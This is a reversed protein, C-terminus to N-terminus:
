SVVPQRGNSIGMISLRTHALGVQKNENFWIGCEDPGRHKLSEIAKVMRDRNISKSEVVGIIGCM